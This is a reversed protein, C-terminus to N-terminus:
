AEEENGRKTVTLTAKVFCKETAKLVLASEAGCNECAFTTHEENISFLKNTHGCFPCMM